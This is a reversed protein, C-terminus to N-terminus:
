LKSRLEEIRDKSQIHLDQLRMALGINGQINIKGQFFAEPPNLKGSILDVIDNDDM